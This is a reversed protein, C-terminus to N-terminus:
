PLTVRQRYSFPGDSYSGKLTLNVNQGKTGVTAPFRLTMPASSKAAAITGASIPFPLPIPKIANASDALTAFGLVFETADPGTTNSVNVTLVIENTVADRVATAAIRLAPRGTAIGVNFTLANSLGGGPAPTNVMVVHPGGVKLDNGTLDFALSADSTMRTIRPSGDWLVVSEPVFNLGNVNLTLAELGAISTDQSLGSLRPAPNVLSILTETTTGGGPSPSMVKISASGTKALFSTPAQACLSTGSLYTTPLPMGNWLIVSGANGGNSAIFASGNVTVKFTSDNGITTIPVSPNAGIVILNPAVNVLTPMPANVLFTLANSFSRTFNPPGAPNVLKLSFTGQKALLNSPLIVTIDGSGNFTTQLPSNVNDNLIVECGSVAGDGAIRIFTSQAGVLASTISDPRYSILPQNSGKPLIFFPKGKLVSFPKVGAAIDSESGIRFSGASKTDNVDTGVSFPFGFGPDTDIDVLNADNAGTLKFYVRFPDFNLSFRTIPTVKTEFVNDLEIIPTVSLTNGSTPLTINPLSGIINGTAGDMLFPTAFSQAVSLGTVSSIEDLQLTVKVKPLFKFDMKLDQAVRGYLDALAWGTSLSGTPKLDVAIDNKRVFDIADGVDGALKFLASTFNADLTALHDRATGSLNRPNNLETGGMASLNPLNISFDIFNLAAIGRAAKGKSGKGTTGRRNASKSGTAGESDQIFGNLGFVSGILGLDAKHALITQLNFFEKSTDSGFHTDLLKGDNGIINDGFLVAKANINADVKLIAEAIVNVKPTTTQLTAAFSANYSPVLTFQQGPRVSRQDPLMMNMILPYTIDATGKDEIFRFNLGFKGASDIDLSGGFRGIGSGTFSSSHYSGPVGTAGGWGQLFGHASEFHSNAGFLGQKTTQFNFLDRYYNLGLGPEFVLQNGLAWSRIRVSPDGLSNGPLTDGLGIFGTQMASLDLTPDVATVRLALENSIYVDLLHSEPIYRIQIDGFFFKDLGLSSINKSALLQNVGNPRNQDYQWVQLTPSNSPNLPNGVPLFSVAICRLGSIGLYAVDSNRQASDLGVFDRPDSTEKLIYSFGRTNGSLSANFSAVVGNRADINLKSYASALRYGTSIGNPGLVLQGGTVSPTYLQSTQNLRLSLNDIHFLPANFLTTNSSQAIAVEGVPLAIVSIMLLQIARLAASRKQIKMQSNTEKQENLTITSAIDNRRTDVFAEIKRHFQSGSCNSRKTANM